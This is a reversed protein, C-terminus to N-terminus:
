EKSTARAVSGCVEGSYLSRRVSKIVSILVDSQIIIEGFLARIEIESHALKGVIHSKYLNSVFLNKYISFYIFISFAAAQQQRNEIDYLLKIEPSYARLKVGWLGIYFILQLFHKGMKVIPLNYM